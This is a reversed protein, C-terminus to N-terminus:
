RQASLVRFDDEYGKLVRVANARQEPTTSNHLRAFQACGQRVLERQYDNYGPTPSRNVRAYHERVLQQARAPAAQAERVTQLLDAQRRLREAQTRQADFPSSQILERLLALQEKSLTGYLMESRSTARELRKKLRQEPNGRLFDKEFEENSRAQHRQLHELQAPTLQLALRTFPEVTRDAAREIRERVDEFQVCAQAPTLDAPALAQWERLRGAYVPLENQRHWQFFQDLADRTQTSQADDLDVYADLWWYSITPAQNYALRAATCASMAVALVLGAGLWALRRAIIRRLRLGALAGRLWDGFSTNM